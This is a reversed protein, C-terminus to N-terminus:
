CQAKKTQPSVRTLHDEYDPKFSAAKWCTGNTVISYINHPSKYNTEIILMANGFLVAIVVRKEQGYANLLFLCAKIHLLTYTINFPSALETAIEPSYFHAAQCQRKRCGLSFQQLGM